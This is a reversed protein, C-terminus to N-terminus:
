FDLLGISGRAVDANCLFAILTDPVFCGHPGVESTGVMAIVEARRKKGEFDAKKMAWEEASGLMKWKSRSTMYASLIAIWHLPFEAKFNSSAFFFRKSTLASNFKVCPGNRGLLVEPSIIWSGRLCAALQIASNNPTRPCSSLFITAEELGRGAVMGNHKEMVARWAPLM